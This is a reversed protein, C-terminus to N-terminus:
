GTHGPHRGGSGGCMALLRQRLMEPAAHHVSTVCPLRVARTLVDKVDTRMSASRTTVALIVGTLDRNVREAWGGVSTGAM